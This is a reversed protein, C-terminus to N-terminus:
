RVAYVCKSHSGGISPGGLSDTPFFEFFEVCHVKIHVGDQLVENGRLIAYRFTVALEEVTMANTDSHFSVRSLHRLLAGLSARNVPHLERIKTRLLSFDNETYKAIFSILIHFSVHSPIVVV